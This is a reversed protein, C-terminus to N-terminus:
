TPIDLVVDVVQNEVKVEVILANQSLYLFRGIRQWIRVAAPQELSFPKAAGSWEHRAECFRV